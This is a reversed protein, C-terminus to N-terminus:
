SCVLTHQLLNHSPLTQIKGEPPTLKSGVRCLTDSKGSPQLEPRGVHLRLMEDQLAAAAAASVSGDQANLAVAAISLGAVPALLQVGDEIGELAEWDLEEEGGDRGLTEDAGEDDGGEDGDDLAGTTSGDTRSKEAESAEYEADPLRGTAIAVLGECAEAVLAHLMPEGLMTLATRTVHQTLRQLLPGNLSSCSVAFLPPSNPYDPSCLFRLLLPPHPPQQSAPTAEPPLSLCLHLSRPDPYTAEDGFISEM